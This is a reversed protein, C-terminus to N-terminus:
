FFYPPLHFAYRTGANFYSLFIGARWCVRRYINFYTTIIKIRYRFYCVIKLVM